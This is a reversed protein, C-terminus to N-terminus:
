VDWIFSRQKVLYFDNCLVVAPWVSQPTDDAVYLDVWSLSSISSSSASLSVALLHIHSMQQWDDIYQVWSIDVIHDSRFSRFGVGDVSMSVCIFSIGYAKVGIPFVPALEHSSLSSSNTKELSTRGSLSAWRLLDARFVCSFHSISDAPQAQLSTYMHM